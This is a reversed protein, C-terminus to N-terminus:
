APNRVVSMARQKATDEAMQVVLLAEDLGKIEGETIRILQRKLEIRRKIEKIMTM